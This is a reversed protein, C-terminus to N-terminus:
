IKRFSRLLLQLQVNVKKRMMLDSFMNQGWDLWSCLPDNYQAMWTLTEVAREEMQFPLKRRVM